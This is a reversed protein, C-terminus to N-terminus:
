YGLATELPGKPLPVLFWIEFMFFLAIPILIAVPAIKYLPYKGLWSMFFAIFIASSVYLGLFGIM